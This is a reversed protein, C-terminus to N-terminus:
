LYAWKFGKYTKLKGIVAKWICTKNFGQLVLGRTGYFSAILNGSLSFQGIKRANPHQYQAYHKHLSTKLKEISERGLIRKPRERKVLFKTSLGAKKLEKRILTDSVGFTTAIEGITKTHLLREFEERTPVTWRRRETNWCNRCLQFPRNTKRGCRPCHYDNSSHLGKDKISQLSHLRTHEEISLLSLNSLVNNDRTGDIHHVVENETLCRGLFQEMVYRHELVYGKRCGSTLSSPHEPHYVYKYGNCWLVEKKMPKENSTTM